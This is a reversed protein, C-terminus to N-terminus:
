INTWFKSLVGTYKFLYIYVGKMKTEDLAFCKIYKVNTDTFKKEQSSQTPSFVMQWEPEVAQIICFVSRDDFALAPWPKLATVKKRRPCICLCANTQCM